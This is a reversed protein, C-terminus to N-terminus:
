GNIKLPRASSFCFKIGNNCLTCFLSTPLPLSALSGVTSPHFFISSNGCDILQLTVLELYSRQQSKTKKWAETNEPITSNTESESSGLGTEVRGRCITVTKYWDGWWAPQFSILSGDEIVETNWDRLKHKFVRVAIEKMLFFFNLACRWYCSWKIFYLQPPKM